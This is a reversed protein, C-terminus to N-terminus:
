ITAMGGMQTCKGAELKGAKLKEPPMCSRIVAGGNMDSVTHGCVEDAKCDTPVPDKGEDNVHCKLSQAEKLIELVLVVFCITRMRSLRFHISIPQFAIQSIFSFNDQLRGM